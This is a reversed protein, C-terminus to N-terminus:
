EGGQDKLTRNKVGILITDLVERAIQKSDRDSPEEVEVLVRLKNQVARLYDPECLRLLKILLDLTEWNKSHRKSEALFKGVINYYINGKSSQMKIENDKTALSEVDIEYLLKGFKLITKATLGKTEKLLSAKTDEFSETPAYSM